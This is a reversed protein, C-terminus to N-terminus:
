RTLPAAHMFAFWAYTLTVAAVLVLSLIGLAGTEGSAANGGMRQQALERHLMFVPLATSFAVLLSALFYWGVGRMKLRRAETLMWWWVVLFVFMIDITIFRSSATSLTDQWFQVNGGVLGLALYPKLQAGACVLAAFAILVYLIHRTAPKISM